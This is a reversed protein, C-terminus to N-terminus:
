RPAGVPEEGQQPKEKIGWTRKRGAGVIKDSGLSLPTVSPSSNMAMAKRRGSCDECARRAAQPRPVIPVHAM